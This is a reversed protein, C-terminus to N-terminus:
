RRSRATGECPDFRICREDPQKDDGDNNDQLVRARTSGSAVSPISRGRASISSKCYGRVPRVQHLCIAGYMAREMCFKCYGRVPRVQHLRQSIALAFTNSASATGECPDFRICCIVANGPM